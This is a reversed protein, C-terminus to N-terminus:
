RPQFGTYGLNGLHSSDTIVQGSQYQFLGGWSGVSRAIGLVGALASCGQIQCTCSLSRPASGVRPRAGCSAILSGTTFPLVLHDYRQFDTQWSVWMIDQLLDSSNSAVYLRSTVSNPFATRFTAPATPSSELSAEFSISRKLWFQLSVLSARTSCQRSCWPLTAGFDPEQLLPSPGTSNRAEANQLNGNDTTAHFRAAVIHLVQPLAMFGVITQHGM